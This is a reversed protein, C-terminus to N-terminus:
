EEGTQSIALTPNSATGEVFVTHWLKTTYNLLQFVNDANIRYNATGGSPISDINFDLRESTIDADNAAVLTVKGDPGDCGITYFLQNDVNILQFVYETTIRFNSNDQWSALTSATLTRM